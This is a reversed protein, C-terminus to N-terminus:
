HPDSLMAPARGGEPRGGSGGAKQRRLPLGAEAEGTRIAEKRDTGKVESDEKTDDESGHCCHLVNVVVLQPVPYVYPLICM